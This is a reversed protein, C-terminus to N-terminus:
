QFARAIAGQVDAFVADVDRSADIVMVPRPYYGPLELFKARVAEHFELPRAEMADTTADQFMDFQGAAERRRPAKPNRGVRQFGLQPPVDLVLTLDPWTAGVALKGLALIDERPVGIAGQYACTASIFRDGLVTKGAAIAPRVVEAVLQARSAMFLLAECRPDMMALDYGLLVHRIRNGIETGGPDKAQATAVGQAEIWRRVRELQTSKGCGDPGDFVIFKGGVNMGRRYGLPVAAAVARFRRRVIIRPPARQPVPPASGALIVVPVRVPVLGLRGETADAKCPSM